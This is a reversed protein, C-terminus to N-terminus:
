AYTSQITTEFLKQVACKALHLDVRLEQIEQFLGGGTKAKMGCDQSLLTLQTNHQKIQRLLEKLYKQRAEPARMKLLRTLYTPINNQYFTQAKEYDTKIQEHVTQKPRAIVAAVSTM